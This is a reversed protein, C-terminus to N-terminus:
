DGAGVELTMATLLLRSEHRRHALMTNMWDRLDRRLHQAVDAFSRQQHIRDRLQQLNAYLLHHERHLRDVQLHWNPFRELVEPLYDDPDGSEQRQSLANLLADLVAKLWNVTSANVPEELLDRLDGLLIYALPASTETSSAVRDTGNAIM